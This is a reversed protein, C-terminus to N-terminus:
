QTPPPSLDCAYPHKACYKPQNPQAAIGRAQLRYVWDNFRPQVTALTRRKQKTDYPGSWFIEAAAASRPWLKMDLVTPGSQESWLALEVGLVKGKHSKKIGYTPDFTYIRQWTKYPACWSGGIGGYNFTDDPTQMQTPSIYRTDNGVWGGNGCDLYFYDNSSVIVDYGKSTYNAAPTNWIQVITNKDFTDDKDANIPDEWIVPRKKTHQKVYDFIKKTWQVWLQDTTMNHKKLYAAVQTDQEWCKGNIEDGGTHYLTDPFISTAEKILDKVLNLGKNSLPNLQGAPPEAALPGWFQNLCTMVDPHSEGISATHAPMDIEVYVRVGRSQGYKIVTQVDKPSYTEESSYAAKASLEPHSKFELPWSQSDTAHWHLVNMKNFALADITRLIDKVPYFNRSTDLSIGRHGYSPSDSISATHVVSGHSSKTVLQSFTELGRLAGVWTPANLTASGGNSPVNLTYSEDIDIDLKINDNKVNIKLNTLANAKKLPPQKEYPVQVPSWKEKHILKQYRTAADKVHNNKAGIIKFDSSLPAGHGTWNVEQPIPFLFTEADVACFLLAASAIAFSIKM